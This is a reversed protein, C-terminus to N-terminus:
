LQSQEKFKKFKLMSKSLEDLDERDNRTPLLGWVYKKNYGDWTRGDAKYIEDEDSLAEYGAAGWDIIVPEADENIMINGTHLDKHYLGRAHLTKIMNTIKEIFEEHNYLGAISHIKEKHGDLITRDEDIAYLLDGVSYGKIRQMVLYEQGNTNDRLKKYYMPTAIGMDFVERQIEAETDISNIVKEPNKILKKVCLEEYGPLDFVEANKGVGIIESNKLVDEMCAIIEADNFKEAYSRVVEYKSTASEEKNLRKQIAKQPNEFENM